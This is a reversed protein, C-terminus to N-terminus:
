DNTGYPAHGHKMEVFDTPDMSEEYENNREEDGGDTPLDM